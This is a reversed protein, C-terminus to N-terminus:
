RGELLHLNYRDIIEAIAEKIEELDTEAWLEEGELFGLGAGLVWADATAELLAGVLKRPVRGGNRRTLEQLQQRVIAHVFQRGSLKDRPSYGM